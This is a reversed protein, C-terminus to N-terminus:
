LFQRTDWFLDGRSEDFKPSASLCSTRFAEMNDMEDADACRCIWAVKRSRAILDRRTLVDSELTTPHSCWIGIYGKGKRGLYWGEDAEITEEFIDIPWHAHTFGIPHSSPIDYTVFVSAERQAIAPLIGNGYWYGPRSIGADAVTGPHNVFIHCDRALTAHWLLEQYGPQGAQLPSNESIQVSSVVHNASKHLMLCHNAQHYTRSITRDVLSGLYRPATYTPSSALFVSWPDVSEVISKGAAFSLFGQAASTQPYLVSRYVRGQPGSTVGDFTHEALQRLMRDLLKSASTRIEQDDSFDALNLLAAATIPTYSGSLYETFGHSHRDNLWELCRSHGLDRQEKGSRNSATFTEDPFRIGTIYQCSHFLLAHNESNFAMADSGDEDEWYRFRLAAMELMKKQESHGWGLCLLRLLIAMRFDSCDLRGDIYELGDDLAAEDAQKDPTELIHRALTAFLTRSPEGSQSAAIESLYRSQYDDLSEYPNTMPLNQPIEFQRDLRQEEVRAEVRCAFTDRGHWTLNTNGTMWARKRSQSPRDLTVDVPCPPSSLAEIGGPSVTVTDLWGCVKVLKSTAVTHGPVAIKLNDPIDILQIAFLLPTDRVALEQIQVTLRNHGPKLTIVVTPSASVRKRDSRTYRSCHQQDQWLDITNATWMRLPLEQAKNSVLLTSAYLNIHKVTHYFAGQDLYSNRGPYHFRWTRSDPAPGGLSPVAPSPALVDKIADARMLDERTEEGAYSVADVGTHIWHRIYGEEDPQFADTLM